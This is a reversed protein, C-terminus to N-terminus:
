GLGSEDGTTEKTERVDRLMFVVPSSDCGLGGSVSNLKPSAM